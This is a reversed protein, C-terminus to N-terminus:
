FNSISKRYGLCLCVSAYSQTVMGYIVLLSICKKLPFFVKAINLLDDVAKGDCKFVEELKEM